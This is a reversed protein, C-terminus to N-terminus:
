KNLSNLSDNLTNDIDPGSLRKGGSQKLMEKEFTKWLGFTSEKLRRDNFGGFGFLNKFQNHPKISEEFSQFNDFNKMLKEEVNNENLVGSRNHTDNNANFNHASPHALLDLQFLSFCSLFLFRNKFIFKFM